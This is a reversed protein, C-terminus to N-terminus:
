DEIDQLEDLMMSQQENEFVMKRVSRQVRDDTQEFNKAKIFKQLERKTM